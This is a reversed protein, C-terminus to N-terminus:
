RAVLVQAMKEFMFSAVRRSRQRGRFATDQPTLRKKRPYPHGTALLKIVRDRPSQIESVALTAADAEGPLGRRDRRPQARMRANAVNRDYSKGIAAGAGSKVRKDLGVGGFVFQEFKQAIGLGLMQLHHLIQRAVLLAFDAAFNKLQYGHVLKIQNIRQDSGLSFAGDDGM